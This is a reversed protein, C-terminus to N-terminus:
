LVVPMPPSQIDRSHQLIIDRIASDDIGGAERCVRVFSEVTAKKGQQTKWMQLM